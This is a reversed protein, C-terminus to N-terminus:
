RVPQRLFLEPVFGSKEGPSQDLDDNEVASILFLLNLSSPGGEGRHDLYASQFVVDILVIKESDFDAGHLLDIVELGAELGARGGAEPCRITVQCQWYSLAPDDNGVYSHRKVALDLRPLDSRRRDGIELRRFPRHCLANELKRQFIKKIELIVGRTGM